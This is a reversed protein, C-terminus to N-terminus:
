SSRRNHDNQVATKNGLQEAHYKKIAERIIHNIGQGTKEKLDFVLNTTDHNLSLKM